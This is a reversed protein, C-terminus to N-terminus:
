REPSTFIWHNFPVEKALEKAEKSMTALENLLVEADVKGSLRTRLKAIASAVM